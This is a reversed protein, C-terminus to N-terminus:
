IKKGFVLIPLNSCGNPRRSERGYVSSRLALEYNLSLRGSAPTGNKPRAVVSITIAHLLDVTLVAMRRSQVHSVKILFNSATSTRGNRHCHRV